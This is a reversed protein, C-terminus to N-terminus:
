ATRGAEIFWDHLTKITENALRQQPCVFYYQYESLVSTNFLRVLRRSELLSKVFADRALIVGMGDLAAQIQIVTDNYTREEKPRFKVKNHKFWRQWEDFPLPEGILKQELLGEISHVREALAPACVPFLEHRTFQRSYLGPWNGKAMRIAFDIETDSNFDVNAHSASLRVKINPIAQELSPMRPMLWYTAFSPLVSITLQSTQKTGSIKLTGKRITEMADEVVAQYQRGAETLTLQPGKRKFLERGLQEELIAIQRSVAGQTVHLEAAAKTFSQTRAAAEFMRIANLSPLDRKM